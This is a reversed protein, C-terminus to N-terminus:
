RVIRSPAAPIAAYSIEHEKSKYEIYKGLQDKLRTDRAFAHNPGVSQNLQNELPALAEMEKAYKTPNKFYKKATEHLTIFSQLTNATVARDLMVKMSGEGKNVREGSNMNEIRRDLLGDTYGSNKNQQFVKEFENYLAPKPPMKHRALAAIKSEIRNLLGDKKDYLIEAYHHVDYAAVIGTPEGQKFSYKSFDDSISSQQPFRGAYNDIATSPATDLVRVQQKHKLYGTLQTTCIADQNTFFAVDGFQGELKKIISISDSRKKGKSLYDAQFNKLDAIAKATAITEGSQAVYSNKIDNFINEFKDLHAIGATAPLKVFEDLKKWVFENLPKNLIDKNTLLRESGIANKFQLYLKDDKQIKSGFLSFHSDLERQFKSFVNIAAEAAAKQSGTKELNEAYVSQFIDEFKEACYKSEIIKFTNENEKIKEKNEILFYKLQAGCEIVNEPDEFETQFQRALSKHAFFADKLYEMDGEDIFTQANIYVSLDKFDKQAKKSALINERMGDILNATTASNDTVYASYAAKIKDGYSQFNSSVNLGRLNNTGAMKYM